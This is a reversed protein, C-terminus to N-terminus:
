FKMHWHFKRQYSLDFKRGSRSRHAAAVLAILFLCTISMVEMVKSDISMYGLLAMKTTESAVTAEFITEVDESDM